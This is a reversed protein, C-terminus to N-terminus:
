LLKLGANDPKQYSIHFRDTITKLSFQCDLGPFVPELELLIAVVSPSFLLFLDPQSSDRIGQTVCRGAIDRACNMMYLKRYDLPTKKMKEFPSLAIGFKPCQVFTDM